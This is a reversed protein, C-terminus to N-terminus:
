DSSLKIDIYLYTKKLIKVASCVLVVKTNSIVLLGLYFM